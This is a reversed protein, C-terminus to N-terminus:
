SIKKALVVRNKNSFDRFAFLTFEGGDKLQFKKRIEDANIPFNRTSINAKKGPLVEQLWKKELSGEAIVQFARGPFKTDAEKSTYLHTNPAIKTVSASVTKFFGGKLIGAHPEYLYNKCDSFKIDSQTESSKKAKFLLSNEQNLEIISIEPDESSNNTKLFLLEKVENKICIVYVKEIGELEKIARDIDLLPSTKILLSTKESIHPILEIANPECDQLLVVKNGVKDRRAPDVYIFDFVNKQEKLWTLSDTAHHRISGANLQQHNYATIKALDAQRELYDVECGAQAFAYSDLGMGGTLDVIKGKILSAKYHATEESSSQELALSPPFFVQTNAIWQPMKDKLKQRAKIQGVLKPVDLDPYKSAELAIAVPDRHLNEQIFQIETELLM